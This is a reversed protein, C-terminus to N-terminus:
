DASGSGLWCDGCGCWDVVSDLGLERIEDKTAEDARVEGALAVLVRRDDPRLEAWVALLQQRIDANLM